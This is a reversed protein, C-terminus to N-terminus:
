SVAYETLQRRKPSKPALIEIAQLFLWLSVSYVSDIRPTGAGAVTRSDPVGFSACPVCLLNETDETARHNTTQLRRLM